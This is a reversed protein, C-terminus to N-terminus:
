SRGLEWYAYIAGPVWFVLCLVASIAMSRPKADGTVYLALPPLIPTLMGALLRKDM